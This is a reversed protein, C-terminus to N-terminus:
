LESCWYSEIEEVTMGCEPCFDIDLDLLTLLCMKCTM